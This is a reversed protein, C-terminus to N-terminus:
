HRAFPESKKLHEKFRTIWHRDTQGVYCANCRPCNIRYVVGSKLSKKVSPKLSPLLSKVKKLTFVVKCPANLKKLSMEFNESLKGRYPIFILKKDNQDEEDVKERPEIIASLCKKIIPDYFSKPYQNNELIQKAKELSQHIADWSSCARVIRYVMGSVVSRKYKIPALAHFNMTLGTDTPKTHWTSSLKGNNNIILMDLFALRNNIDREVTFKLSPHLGNIEELKEAILAKKINVLIDDMYRAYLSSDGKIASDYKSLWGNALMPAPPSGMTLGDTQIYYGNNTLM